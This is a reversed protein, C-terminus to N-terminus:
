RDKKRATKYAKSTKSQKEVYKLPWCTKDIPVRRMDGFHDRYLLETTFKERYTNGTTYWYKVNPIIDILTANTSFDVDITKETKKRDDINKNRVNRDRRGREKSTNLKIKAAQVSQSLAKKAKYLM